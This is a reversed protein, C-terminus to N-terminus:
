RRFLLWLSTGGLLALVLTSALGLGVVWAVALVFALSTGTLTMLQGVRGGSPYLRRYEAILHRTKSFHWGLWLIQQGQPLRANVEDVIRWSIFTYALGCAATVIAFVVLVVVQSAGM